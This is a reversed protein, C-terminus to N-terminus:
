KDSNSAEKKKKKPNKKNKEKKNGDKDVRKSKKKNETSPNDNVNLIDLTDFIETTGNKEKKKASKSADKSAKSSAKSKSKPKTDTTQAQNTGANGVPLDGFIGLLDNTNSGSPNTDATSTPNENALNEVNGNKSKKKSDKEANKNKSAKTKKPKKGDKNSKGTTKTVKVKKKVKLFQLNCNCLFVIYKKSTQEANQEETYKKIIDEEKQKYPQLHPMVENIPKNWDIAEELPDIYLPQREKTEDIDHKSLKPGKKVSYRGIKSRKSKEPLIGRQERKAESGLAGDDTHNTEEKKSRQDDREEEKNENDEQGDEQLMFPDNPLLKKKPSEKTETPFWDKQDADSLNEMDDEEEEEEKESEPWPEGMWDELSLGSPIKKAAIAQNKPHVPSLESSFVQAFASVLDKQENQPSTTLIPDLWKLFYIYATAREQVEIHSSSALPQLLQISGTILDKCVQN